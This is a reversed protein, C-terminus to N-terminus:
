GINESVKQKRVGKIKWQFIKKLTWFCTESVRQKRVGEIKKGFYFFNADLFMPYNRYNNNCPDGCPQLLQVNCNYLQSQPKSSISLDIVQGNIQILISKVVYM